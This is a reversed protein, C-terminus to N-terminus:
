SAEDKSYAYRVNSVLYIKLFYFIFEISGQLYAKAFSDPDAM